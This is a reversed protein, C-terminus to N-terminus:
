GYGVFNHAARAACSTLSSCPVRPTPYPLPNAESKHSRLSGEEDIGIGTKHTDSVTEVHIRQLLCQEKCSFSPLLEPMTCISPGYIYIYIQIYSIFLYASSRIGSVIHYSIIHIQHHIYIYIYICVYIYSHIFHIQHNCIILYASPRFIDLAM